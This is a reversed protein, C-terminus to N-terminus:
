FDILKIENYLKIYKKKSVIKNLEKPFYKYNISSRIIGLKKRSLFASNANAQQGYITPKMNQLNYNICLEKSLNKITIKNSILKKYNILIINKPYKKKLMLINKHSKFWYNEFYKEISINIKYKGNFYRAKSSYLWTKPDRSIYVIKSDPFLKLIKRLNQISCSLNPKYFSCFKKRKYKYNSIAKLYSHIYIDIIESLSKPNNEKILKFFIKKLLSHNFVFKINSNNDKPWKGSFKLYRKNFLILDKFIKRINKSKFNLFKNQIKNNQLQDNIFHYSGLFLEDHISNFHYTSDFLRNLLNGGSRQPSCIIVLQHM